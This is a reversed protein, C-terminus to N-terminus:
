GRLIVANFMPLPAGVLSRRRHRALLSAMLMVIIIKIAVMENCPQYEVGVLPRPKKTMGVSEM